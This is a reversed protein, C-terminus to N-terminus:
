SLGLDLILKVIIRFPVMISLLVIFKYMSLYINYRAEHYKENWENYYAEDIVKVACCLTRLGDAAFDQM